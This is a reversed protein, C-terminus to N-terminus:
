QETDGANIQKIEDQISARLAALKFLKDIPFKEVVSLPENFSVSIIGQLKEFDNIESKVEELKQEVDEIYQKSLTIATNVVTTIVGAAMSDPDLPENLGLVGECILDFIDDEIFSEYLLDPIDLSLARNLESATLLRFIFVASKFNNGNIVTDEVVLGYRGDSINIVNLESM